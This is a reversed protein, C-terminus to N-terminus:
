RAVSLVSERIADYQESVGCPFERGLDEHVRVNNLVLISHMLMTAVTRTDFPRVLGQEVCEDFQKQIFDISYNLLLGHFLDAAVRSHFQETQILSIGYMLFMHVAERLEYFLNDVVDEFTEAYARATELRDFYMLYLEQIRELVAMWLAEKSEYHNYLSAAKIGVENAIDKVSVGYYGKKAFLTASALLIREKTNSDRTIETKPYKQGLIELVTPDKM